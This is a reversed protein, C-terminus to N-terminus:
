RERASKPTTTGGTSWRAFSTSIAPACDSGCTWEEERIPRSSRTRRVLRVGLLGLYREDGGSPRRQATITLTGLRVARPVFHKTRRPVRACWAPCRAGNVVLVM